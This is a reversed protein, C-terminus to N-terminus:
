VHIYIYIGFAWIFTPFIPLEVFTSWHCKSETLKEATIINDSISSMTPPSSSTRRQGLFIELFFSKYFFKSSFSSSLSVTDYLDFPYQMTTCPESSHWWTVGTVFAFSSLIDNITENCGALGYWLPLIIYFRTVSNSVIQCWEVGNSVM